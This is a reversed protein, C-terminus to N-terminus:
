RGSGGANGGDNTMRGAVLWPGRGHNSTGGDEEEEEIDLLGDDRDSEVKGRGM